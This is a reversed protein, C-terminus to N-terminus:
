FMRCRMLVAASLGLGFSVKSRFSCTRITSPGNAFKVPTTSSTFVSRLVSFTETVIKPRDVGTSNSKAWTSFTAQDPQEFTYKITM